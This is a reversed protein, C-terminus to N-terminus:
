VFCGITQINSKGIGRINVIHEAGKRVKLNSGTAVRLTALWNAGITSVM